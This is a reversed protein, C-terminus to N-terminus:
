LLMSSFLFNVGREMPLSFFDYAWKKIRGLVHCSSVLSIKKHMKFALLFAMQRHTKSISLLKTQERVRRLVWLM